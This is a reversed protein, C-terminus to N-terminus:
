SSLLLRFLPRWATRGNHFKQIQVFLSSLFYQLTWVPSPQKSHLFRDCGLLRLVWSFRKLQKWFCFLLLVSSLCSFAPDSSAQHIGLARWCPLLTMLSPIKHNRSLHSLTHIHKGVLRHDHIWNGPDVHNSPLVSEQLKAESKTVCTMAHTCRCVCAIYIFLYFFKKKKAQKNPYNRGM